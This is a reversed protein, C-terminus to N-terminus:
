DKSNIHIGLKTLLFRGVLIPHLLLLKVLVWYSVGLIEKRIIEKKNAVADAIWDAFPPPMLKPLDNVPFFRIAKTEDGTKKEGSIAQCEYYFSLQTLKNVPLYEAIQRVIKVEYGTEEKMERLIAEEPKEGPDIGGGPLVWVPVDRRQILLVHDHPQNFIIGYVAPKLSSM